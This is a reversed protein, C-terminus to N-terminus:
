GLGGVAKELEMSDLLRGVFGAMHYMVSPPASALDTATVDSRYVSGSTELGDELTHQSAEKFCWAPRPGPLSGWLQPFRM